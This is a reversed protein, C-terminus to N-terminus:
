PTSGDSEFQRPTRDLGNGGNGYFLFARGEGNEGNDYGYAGVIVDSYGDGNVDGATGVSQGFYANGQNGEGTWDASASLGSGTGLFVIAQGEGSSGLGIGGIIVDSYGDGNVDSATGVSGGFDSLNDNSEVMWNFVASLGSSSGHFVYAAGERFEGNTYWTGGVIVDSYGDSNVDGATGV